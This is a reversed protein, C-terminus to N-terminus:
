KGTTIKATFDNLQHQAHQVATQAENEMERARNLELELKKAELRRAELIASSNNIAANVETQKLLFADETQKRIKVVGDRHAAKASLEKQLKTLETQWVFIQKTQRDIQRQLVSQPATQAAATSTSATKAPADAQENSSKVEIKGDDTIVYTTGMKLRKAIEDTWHKDLEKTMQQRTVSLALRKGNQCGIDHEFSYTAQKDNDRLRIELRCNYNDGDFELQYNRKTGSAFTVRGDITVRAEAPCSLLVTFQGKAAKATGKSQGGCTECGSRSQGCKECTSKETACKPCAAKGTACQDCAPLECRSRSCTECPRNGASVSVASSLLVAFSAILSLSSPPVIRM